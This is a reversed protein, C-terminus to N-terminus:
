RGLLAGAPVGALETSEHGLHAQDAYGGVFAADALSLAPDAAVLRLTRQLRLIRALLKPGYGVEAHVRRRLQRESYGLRDALARVRLSPDAALLEAAAAVAPDRAVGSAIRHEAWGRLLMPRAGAPAAALAESLRAAEDSGVVADAPQSGAALAEGPVGFIARSSGPLFRVGCSQAGAGFAALHATPDPGAVRLADGHWILDVCGDPLVRM